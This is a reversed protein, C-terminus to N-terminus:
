IVTIVVTGLAILYSNLLWRKFETKEFLYQIHALTPKDTFWLPFHQLNYLDDNTKFTTIIMYYVPFIAIAIFLLIGLLLLIRRIIKGASVPAVRQATDPKAALSAIAENVAM